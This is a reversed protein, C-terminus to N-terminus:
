GTRLKSPSSPDKFYVLRRTSPFRTRPRFACALSLGFLLFHMWPQKYALCPEKGHIPHFGMGGIGWGPRRRRARADTTAGLRRREPNPELHPHPSLHSELFSGQRPGKAALPPLAAPAVSGSAEPKAGPQDGWVYRCPRSARWNARSGPGDQLRIPFAAIARQLPEM